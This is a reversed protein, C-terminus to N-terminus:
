KVSPDVLGLNYLERGFISFRKRGLNTSAAENNTISGDPRVEFMDVLAPHCNGSIIDEILTRIHKRRRTELPDLGLEQLLPAAHADRPADCIVRSAIKQITDLKNLHTISASAFTASSYELHTRILATYTLRLLERPLSPAVRRLM